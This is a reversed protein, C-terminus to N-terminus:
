SLHLSGNLWLQLVSRNVASRNNAKILSVHEYSTRMLKLSTNRAALFCCSFSKIFSTKLLHTFKYDRGIKFLFLDLLLTTASSHFYPPFFLLICANRPM